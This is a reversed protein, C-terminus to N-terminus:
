RSMETGSRISSARRMLASREGPVVDLRDAVVLGARDDGGVLVLDHLDEDVEHAVGLIAHSSDPRVSLCIVTRVVLSSRRTLIATMSLPTPMGASFRVRIKLWPNVVRLVAVAEAQVAAREGGLFEAAREGHLAVAGAAAGRKGQFQGALRVGRGHFSRGSFFVAADQDDVVIAGDVAIKPFDEGVFAGVSLARAM